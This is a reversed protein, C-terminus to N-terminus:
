VFEVRGEVIQIADGFRDHLIQRAADTVPDLMVEVFNGIVDVSIASLFSGVHDLASDLNTVEHQIRELERLSRVHEVITVNRSLGLVARAEAAHQYPESTYAVFQRRGDLWIGAFTEPALEQLQRAHPGSM